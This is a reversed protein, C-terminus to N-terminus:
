PGLNGPNLSSCPLFNFRFSNRGTKVIKRGPRNNKKSIRSPHSITKRRCNPPFFRHNELIWKIRVQEAGNTSALATNPDGTSQSYSREYRQPDTKSCDCDQKVKGIRRSYCRLSSPNGEDRHYQKHSANKSKVKESRDPPSEQESRDHSLCLKSHHEPSVHDTVRDVLKNRDPKSTFNRSGVYYVRLFM